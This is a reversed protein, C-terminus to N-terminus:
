FVIEAAGAPIWTEDGNELEIRWWGTRKELLNFETGSHLPEKFSPQYTEADGMRGTMEDATIVGAPRNTFSVADVVLSALFVASAVAAVVLVVKLGGVKVFLRIGASVWVAAFCAAFIILKVRSPIDYHLFFLTRYVKEQEKREIRDARRNRAYDLNQKLNPDNAMYLSARKYNLIARGIDGLRFYANGINYYLSGNRIGGEKVIREFNLIADQYFGRAAEPDSRDLEMAKRFAQEGQSLNSSTEQTNLKACVPAASLLFSALLLAVTAIPAISIRSDKM